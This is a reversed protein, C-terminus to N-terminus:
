GDRQMFVGRILPVHRVLLEQYKLSWHFLMKDVVVINHNKKLSSVFIIFYFIKLGVQSVIIGKSGEGIVTVSYNERAERDLGKPTYLIGDATIAIEPVDRQNAIVYRVSDLRTGVTQETENRPLAQGIFAGAVNEKM